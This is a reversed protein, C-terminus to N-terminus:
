EQGRGELIAMGERQQKIYLVARLLSLVTDRRSNVRAQAVFFDRMTLTIAALLQNREIETGENVSNELRNLNSLM